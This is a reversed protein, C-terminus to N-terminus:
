CYPQSSQEVRLVSFPTSSIIQAPPGPNSRNQVTPHAVGLSKLRPPKRTQYAPNMRERSRDGRWRGLAQRVENSTGGEAAAEPHGLLHPYHRCTTLASRLPIGDSFVGTESLPFGGYLVREVNRGDRKDPRLLDGRQGSRSLERKGTVEDTSKKPM